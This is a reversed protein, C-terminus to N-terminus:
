EEDDAGGVYGLSELKRIAEPSETMPAALPDAEERWEDLRRRLDALLATDHARGEELLNIQELPDNRLDYFAFKEDPLRFLYKHTATRICQYKDRNPWVPDSHFRTKRWPQTAEAFVPDRPPLPSDLLPAFSQGECRAPVPLGLLHLVSPLVDIGSVLRDIRRNGFRGQPLRLILPTHIETDYVRLGHHFYVQHEHMTEGHDATLIILANDFLDRERLGDLLRKLHHDVYTLEACYEADLARSLELADQRRGDRFLNRVRGRTKPLPPPPTSGQQYMGAFPAPADYPWHVDFYHVFLFLRPRKSSGAAAGAAFGGRDLWALAADTVTEARREAEDRNDRDQFLDYRADYHDFGQDFAFVSDLPMAGIFGATTFGEQRLIEALMVNQQNVVVGNHPVGHTHPYSGTMLSTHSCLTSSATSVHNTFLLGESALADIQPSEVFPHGYCAVHDARLTDLSIVVVHEIDVSNTLPKLAPRSDWGPETDPECGALAVLWAAAIVAPRASRHRAPTM